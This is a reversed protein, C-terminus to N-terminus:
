FPANHNIQVAMDEGSYIITSRIKANGDLHRASEDPIPDRDDSASRVDEGPEVMIGAGRDALGHTTELFDKIPFFNEEFQGGPGIGMHRGIKHRAQLRAPQQRDGIRTIDQNFGGM